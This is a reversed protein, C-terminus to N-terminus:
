IYLISSFVIKWGWGVMPVSPLCDSTKTLLGIIDGAGSSNGDLGGGEGIKLIRFIIKPIAIINDIRKKIKFKTKGVIKLFDKVVV